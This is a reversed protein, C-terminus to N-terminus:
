FEKAFVPSLNRSYGKKKMGSKIALTETAKSDLRCSITSIDVGTRHIVELSSCKVGTLNVQNNEDNIGNTQKEIELIWNFIKQGNGSKAHDSMSMTMLIDGPNALGSIHEIAHDWLNRSYRWGRFRRSVWMYAIEFVFNPTRSPKIMDEFREQWIYDNLGELSVITNFYRQDKILEWPYYEVIIGGVHEGNLNMSFLDCGRTNYFIANTGRTKLKYFMKRHLQVLEPEETGPHFENIFNQISSFSYNSHIYAMDM